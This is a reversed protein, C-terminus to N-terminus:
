PRHVVPQKWWPEDGSGASGLRLTHTIRVGNVMSENASADANLLDVIRQAQQDDTCVAVVNRPDSDGVSSTRRDMVYYVRPRDNIDHWLWYRDSV